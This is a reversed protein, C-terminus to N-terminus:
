GVDVTPRNNSIIIRQGPKLEELLLVEARRRAVRRLLRFAWAATGIYLWPKSDGLFGKRTGRRRLYGLMRGEPVEQKQLENALKKNTGLGAM